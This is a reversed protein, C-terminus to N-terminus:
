RMWLTSARRARIRWTDGARVLEDEYRMGLTLDGQGDATDGLQYVVAYTDATVSQADADEEVLPHGFVHMSTPFARPGRMGDLWEGITQTGRTGVVVADDTFLAALADVDRADASDACGSRRRAGPAYGGRTM